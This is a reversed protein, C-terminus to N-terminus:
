SAIIIRDIGAYDKKIEIREFGRTRLMKEIAGAQDYGIELALFGKTALRERALPIIKRYFDLGDQGGSLATRPEYNVEPQLRKMDRENIYPPNSIIIDFKGPLGALLSGRKLRLRGAVKHSIANKRTVTLAKASVDTGYVRAAELNKALTVAIAGSGTGVDLIKIKKSDVIFSSRHVAKLTEEVLLETEPRPILVGKEISFKLGYFFANQLIYAAPIRRRRLTIFKKFKKIGARKATERRCLMLELRPIGLTEALLLEAELGPKDVGAKKLLQAAWNLLEGWTM